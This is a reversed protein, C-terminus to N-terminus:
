HRRYALDDLAHDSRQGLVLVGLHFDVAERRAESSAAPLRPGQSTVGNFAVDNAHPELLPLLQAAADARDLEVALIAYAITCTTWFNDVPLEAFGSAM